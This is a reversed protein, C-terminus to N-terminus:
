RQRKRLFRTTFICGLVAGASLAMALMIWEYAQPSTQWPLPVNMGYFGTLLTLPAFVATLITLNRVTHNTQHAVAAFHLQIASEVSAELRKAHNLVREIHECIDTLRVRLTAIEAADYPLAKPELWAERLENLADMQEESLAELKRLELRADLLATWDNFARRPDLLERQWRDLQETLPQRLELYADVQANIFRLMLQHPTVAGTIREICASLPAQDSHQVTILCHNSIFFTTPQTVIAQLRHSMKAKFLKRNLTNGKQAAQQQQHAHVLSPILGRFVVMDYDAVGDYHSPHLPNAADQAHLAQLKIGALATIHAIFVGDTAAERTSCDLWQPAQTAAPTVSLTCGINTLLYQKM